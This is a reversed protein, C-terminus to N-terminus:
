PCLQDRAIKRHRHPLAIGRHIAIHGSLLQFNKGLEDFYGIGAGEELDASLGGGPIVFHVHPYHLLNQGRTHLVGFFGVEPGLHRPDRAIMLLTEAAARFLTGYVIEKNHFPLRALEEPITFVVHFIGNFFEIGFARVFSQSHFAGGFRYPSAAGM